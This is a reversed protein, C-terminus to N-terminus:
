ITSFRLASAIKRIGNEVDEIVTTDPLLRLLNVAGNVHNWVFPAAVNFGLKNALLIKVCHYPTAHLCVLSLLEVTKFVKLGPSPATASM